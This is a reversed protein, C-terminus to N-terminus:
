STTGTYWPLANRMASCRLRRSRLRAAKRMVGGISRAPQTSRISCNSARVVSSVQMTYKCTVRPTALRSWWNGAVGTVGVTNPMIEGHDGGGAACRVCPKVAM